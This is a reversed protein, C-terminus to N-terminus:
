LTLIFECGENVRSKVNISGGLMEVQSKTIYLGMGKSDYGEHFTQGPKFLRDACKELDIGIGNDKISLIARGGEMWTRITIQPAIGQRSYKLANNIFNYLISEFYCRPYSIHTLELELKIMAKKEVMIGNLQRMVQQVIEAVDCDEFAITSTAKGEIGKLMNGLSSVLSASSEAILRLGEDLSFVKPKKRRKGDRGAYCGMLVEALMKINAAAGRLNHAMIKSIDERYAVKNQRAINASRAANAVSYVETLM